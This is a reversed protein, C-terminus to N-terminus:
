KELDTTVLAGTAKIRRGCKSFIFGRTEQDRAHEKLHDVFDGVATSVNRWFTWHTQVENSRTDWSGYRTYLIKTGLAACIM